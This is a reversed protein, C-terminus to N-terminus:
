FLEREEVDLYPAKNIWCVQEIDANDAEVSVTTKGEAQCDFRLGLKISKELSNPLAIQIFGQQTRAGSAPSFMLPVSCLGRSNTKLNYERSLPESQESTKRFLVDSVKQQRAADYGLVALETNMEHEILVSNEIRESSTVAYAGHHYDQPKIIQWRVNSGLRHTLQQMAYAPLEFTSLFSIATDSTPKQQESVLDIVRKLWALLFQSFHVHTMVVVMPQCDILINQNYKQNATLFHDSVKVALNALSQRGTATLISNPHQTEFLGILATEINGTLSSVACEPFAGFSSFLAQGNSLSCQALTLADEGVDAILTESDEGQAWLTPSLSRTQEILDCFCFGAKLMISKLAEKAESDVYFPHILKLGIENSHLFVSADRFAKSGIALLTEVAYKAKDSRLAENFNLWSFHRPHQNLSANDLKEAKLGTAQLVGTLRVRNSFTTNNADDFDPIAVVKQQENVYTLAITSPSISLGVTYSRTM